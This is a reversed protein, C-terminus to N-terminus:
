RNRFVQAYSDGSAFCQSPWDMLTSPRLKSAMAPVDHDSQDSALYERNVSDSVIGVLVMASLPIYRTSPSSIPRKIRTYVEISARSVNASMNALTDADPM